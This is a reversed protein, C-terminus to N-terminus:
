DVLARLQQQQVKVTMGSNLQVFVGDKGVETVTAPMPQQGVKVSVKLGVKLGDAQIPAVKMKPESVPKPKRAQTAAGPKKNREPVKARAAKRPPAKRPPKQKERIEAAKQKSLQLQEQAHQAHEAEVTDGAEGNLDIRAVGEKVSALYKWGSTYHRLSMRLLRKSVLETTDLEQALDQFIGIKLPQVKADLVFCKPFREALFALTEKVNTLKQQEM